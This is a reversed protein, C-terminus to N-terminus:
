DNNIPYQCLTATTGVFSHLFLYFLITTFLFLILANTLPIAKIVIIRKKLLCELLRHGCFTVMSVLTLKFFAVVVASHKCLSSSSRWYLWWRHLLNIMLIPENTKNDTSSRSYNIVFRKMGKINVTFAIWDSNWSYIGILRISTKCTIDVSAFIYAKLILCFVWIKSM